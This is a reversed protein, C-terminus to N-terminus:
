PGADGPFSGVADFREAIWAIWRRYVDRAHVPDSPSHGSVPYAVFRVPVGNDKLAHYLKYSQTIPVRADGTTALILTPTRIRHAYTIPSQRRYDEARDDVWPSGGMGLRFYDTLDAANYADFWDTVPAGAVAAAWGDYHATLWATLFGGYSWGSVAIRSEDVMGRSKLVEVGSLVDRAPGDGADGLVASQFALGQTNSGRYNPSFVLWGQAAMAQAPLDWGETSALMPGGHIRLVLPYREGERYGPPYRLVGSLRFGDPGEWTVTEVRPLAMEDFHPNLRTLPRPEWVGIETAYLESPRGSGDGVFILRGDPTAEKAGVELGDFAIRRAPSGDVFVQWLVSKTGDIGTV